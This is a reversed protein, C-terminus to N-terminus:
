ASEVIRILRALDGEPFKWGSEIRRGNALIVSFPADSETETVVVEALHPRTVKAKKWRWYDLTTVPLNIGKCFQRRSLGSREFEEVMMLGDESRRRKEV